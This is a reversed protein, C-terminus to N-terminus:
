FRVQLLASAAFQNSDFSATNRIGYKNHWYDLEVGALLAGTRWGLMQGVDFKIQPVIHLDSPRDSIGMVWDIFGDFVLTTMGLDATAGWALTFQLDDDVDNEIDHRWYANLQTYNFGPVNFDVAGGLLLAEAYEGREYTASFLVDKLPGAELSMGSLKSLSLRPSVEGYWTVDDGAANIFNIVDLFAFLDGVANAQAHELTLTQQHNPDVEFGGGHLYTLSTSSWNIFDQALAPSSGATGVSLLAVAASRVIRMRRSVCSEAGVAPSGGGRRVSAEM